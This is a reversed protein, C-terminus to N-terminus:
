DSSKPERNSNEYIQGIIQLGSIMNLPLSSDGCNLEFRANNPNYVVIGEGIEKIICAISIKGQCIDGEYVENSNKDMIGTALMIEPPTAPCEAGKDDKKLSTNRGIQLQLPGVDGGGFEMSNENWIRFRINKM